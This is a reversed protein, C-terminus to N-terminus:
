VPDSKYHRYVKRFISPSLGTWRKFANTFSTRDSFDLISSINEISLRNDILYTIAYHYRVHDRLEGFSIDSLQLRRQLTRTSIDMDMAVNAISLQSHGVRKAMFAMVEQSFSQGELKPINQILPTGSVDFKESTALQGTFLPSQAELEISRGVGAAILEVVEHDSQSFPLNRETSGFFCVTGYTKESLFLMGGIYNAIEQGNYYGTPRNLLEDQNSISITKGKEIIRACLTDTLPLQDSSVLIASDLNSSIVTFIGNSVRSVICNELQLQQCGIDIFQNIQEQFDTCPHTVLDYLEKLLSIEDVPLPMTGDEPNISAKKHKV